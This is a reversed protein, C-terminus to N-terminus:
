RERANETNNEGKGAGHFSANGLLQHMGGKKTASIPEEGKKHRGGWKKAKKDKGAVKAQPAQLELKRMAGREKRPSSEKGSNGRGEKELRCVHSGWMSREYHGKKSSDRGGKGGGGGLDRVWCQKPKRISCKEPAASRKKKCSERIGCQKRSKKVEPGKRGRNVKEHGVGGCTKKQASQKGCKGMDRGRTHNKKKKKIEGETAPKVHRTERKGGAFRRSKKRSKQSDKKKSKAPITPGGEIEKIIKGKRWNKVAKQTSKARGM